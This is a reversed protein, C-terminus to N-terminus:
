RGLDSYPKARMRTLSGDTQRKSSPVHCWDRWPAGKM